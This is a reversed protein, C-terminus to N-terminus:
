DAFFTVQLPIDFLIAVVYCFQSYLLASILLLEMVLVGLVFISVLWLLRTGM